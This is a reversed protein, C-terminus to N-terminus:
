SEQETAKPQLLEKVWMVDADSLPGPPPLTYDIRRNYRGQEYTNSVARAMDLAVDPDGKLLPVPVVSLAENLQAPWIECLRRRYARTLFIFYPAQPLSQAFVLREGYPDMGPFPSKM